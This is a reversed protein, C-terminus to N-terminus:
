GRIGGADLILFDFIFIFLLGGEYPNNNLITDDLLTLTLFSQVHQYDDPPNHM